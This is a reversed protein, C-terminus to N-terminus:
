IDVSDLLEFEVLVVLTTDDFVFGGAAAEEDFFDRHIAQWRELSGDEQGETAAFAADVQGFPQIQM